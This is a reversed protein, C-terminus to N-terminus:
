ELLPNIAGFNIDIDKNLVEVERVKFTEGSADKNHSLTVTIDVDILTETTITSTGFDVSINTTTIHATFSFDCTAEISLSIRSTIELSKGHSKILNFYPLEQNDLYFDLGTSAVEINKHDWSFGSTAQPHFSIDALQDEISELLSFYLDENKPNSLIKSLSEIIEINNIDNKKFQSLATIINSEIDIHSSQNAFNEWDSDDSVALIHLDEKKAWAELDMLAIADPFESKKKTSFPPRRHFYQDILKELSAGAGLPIKKAGTKELFSNIKEKSLERPKIELAYPSTKFAPSNDIYRNSSSIANKIKDQTTKITEAMKEELERIIVQPFVLISPADKFQNLPEFVPNELHMKNKVFISTDITLADYKM